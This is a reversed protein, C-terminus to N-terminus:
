KAERPHAQGYIEKIKNLSLHTYIQTTAIDEHGLLEQILRIDVGSELLHTAFSHRLTHPSIDKDIGADSTLQKLIKFFGVRSIVEGHNNLFLFGQDKKYGLLNPRSNIIYNRVKNLAYDNVPIIREKSGKGFVRIQKSTFRLDTIKLNCLESVRLGTAYILELMAQNRIGLPTNNEEVKNLLTTVEDISLVVPLKKEMKPAIIEKAVNTKVYKDAYLFRHFSKISCLNRNMSSAKMKKKKLSLLYDRIDDASVDMMDIIGCKEILYNVYNTCDNMYSEVSNSSMMKESTLYYEYEKLLQEM